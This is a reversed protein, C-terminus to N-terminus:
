SQIFHTRITETNPREFLNRSIMNYLLDMQIASFGTTQQVSDWNLKFIIQYVTKKLLTLELIKLIDTFSYDLSKLKEIDNKLTQERALDEDCSSVPCHETKMIEQILSEETQIREIIALVADRNTTTKSFFSLFFEKKRLAIAMELVSLGFAHIDIAKLITAVNEADGDRYAQRLIYLDSDKRIRPSDSKEFLGCTYGQTGRSTLSEKIKNVNHSLDFDNFHANGDHILINTPKIDRHVLEMDHHLTYLAQILQSTWLQIEEPTSIKKPPIHDSLDGGNCYEAINGTTMRKFTMQTRIKIFGGGPIPLGILSLNKEKALTWIKSLIKYEKKLFDKKPLIARNQKLIMPRQETVDFIKSVVGVGGYRQRFTIDFLFFHIRNARKGVMFRMGITTVHSYENDKLREQALSAIRLIELRTYKNPSISYLDRSLMNAQEITDKIEEFHRSFDDTAILHRLYVTTRILLRKKLSNINFALPYEEGYQDKINLVVYRRFYIRSCRNDIRRYAIRTSPFDLGQFTIRNKRSGQSMISRDLFFTKPANKAPLLTVQLVM